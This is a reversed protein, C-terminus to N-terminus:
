LFWRPVMSCYQKYSGGFKEALKPEEYLVVFLQFIVFVAATYFLLPSSHFFLSEGLLICLVGVYMPNRTFRYPGKVVLERPPDIPAPTGKGRMFELVSWFYICIGLFMLMVSFFRLIKPAPLGKFSLFSEILFPILVTVAGPVFLTFLLSKLIVM